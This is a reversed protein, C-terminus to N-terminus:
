FAPIDKMGPIKMIFKSGENLKSQVIITGGLKEINEKVIFLGLGSGKSGAHGRYFMSFIDKLRSQDIGVGNDTISLNLLTDIKRCKVEIFSEAKNTDSYFFANSIINKLIVRLRRVDTIFTKVECDITCKIRGNNDLNKLSDIQKEIEDQLNIKEPVLELRKNRSYDLIDRIFGDLKESSQDIIELCENKEDVKDSERAIQTLSMISTLPARIDHAVSYVFKDLEKNLKVLEKNIM